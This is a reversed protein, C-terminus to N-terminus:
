SLVYAALDLVAISLARHHLFDYRDPLIMHIAGVTVTTRTRAQLIITNLELILIFLLSVYVSSERKGHKVPELDALFGCYISACVDCREFHECSTRQIVKPDKNPVATRETWEEHWAASRSM